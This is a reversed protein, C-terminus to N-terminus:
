QNVEVLPVCVQILMLIKANRSPSRQEPATREVRAGVEGTRARLWLGTKRRVREVESSDKQTLLYPATNSPDRILPVLTSQLLYLSGAGAGVFTFGIAGTPQKTSAALALFSPLFSM